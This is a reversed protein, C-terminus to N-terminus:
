ELDDCFACFGSLSPTPFCSWMSLGLLFTIKGKLDVGKLNCNKKKINRWFCFFPNWWVFSGRSLEVDRGKWDGRPTPLHYGFLYWSWHDCDSELGLLFPWRRNFTPWQQHDWRKFISFIVTALAQPWKLISVNRGANFWVKAPFQCPLQCKKMAKQRSFPSKLNGTGGIAMCIRWVRWFDVLWPAGLWCSENWHKVVQLNLILSVETSQLAWNHIQQTNVPEWFFALFFSTNKKKAMVPLLFTTIRLNTACFWMMWFIDATTIFTGWIGM